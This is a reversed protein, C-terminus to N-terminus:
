ELSLEKEYTYVYSWINDVSTRFKERIDKTKKEGHVSEYIKWVSDEEKDLAAFGSYPASVFYDMKEGGMVNYWYGKRDGEKTNVAATVEEIVENFAMDNNVKFGTSWILSMDALETKRSIKPMSRAINFETNEIYPTIFDLAISRCSKAAPNEAEMQAWNEMRGAMVYVNGKGQLRHWVRWKETGNNDNYCKNWKKVGETFKSDQGYKITFETVNLIFSEADQSNGTTSLLLLMAVAVLTSKMCKM